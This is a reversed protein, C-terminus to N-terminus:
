WTMVLSGGATITEPGGAGDRNTLWDAGGYAQLRCWNALNVEIVGVTPAQYVSFDGVVDKYDLQGRWARYDCKQSVGFRM